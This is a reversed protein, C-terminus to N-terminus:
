AGTPCATPPVTPPLPPPEPERLVRPLPFLLLPTTVGWGRGGKERRTGRGYRGEGRRGVRGGVTGVCPNRRPARGRGRPAARAARLPAARACLAVSLSLFLVTPFRTPHVTLLPPFFSLSLSLACYPSAYPSCYSPPPPRSLRGRAGCAESSEGSSGDVGSSSHALDVELSKASSGNEGSSGNM